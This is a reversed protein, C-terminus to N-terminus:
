THPIQFKGIDTPATPPQCEGPHRSPDQCNTPAVMPEPPTVGSPTYVPCVSPSLGAGYMNGLYFWSSNDYDAIVDGPHLFNNQGRTDEVNLIRITFLPNVDGPLNGRVVVTSQSVGIPVSPTNKSYGARRTACQDWGWVQASFSGPGPPSDPDWDTIIIRSYGPGSTPDPLHFDASYKAAFISASFMLLSSTLTVKSFAKMLAYAM